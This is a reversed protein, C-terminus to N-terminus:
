GPSKNTYSDSLSQIFLDLAKKRPVGDRGSKGSRELFFLEPEFIELETLMPGMPGTLLDVRAYLPPAGFKAKIAAVAQKAVAIQGLTPQYESVSGGLEDQVLWSGEAPRKLIAHSFTEGFMVLSCEGQSVVSELFPQLLVTRGAQYEGWSGYNKGHRPTIPAGVDTVLVTDRAGASISPKVVVENVHRLSATVEARLDQDSRVFKTPVTPVDAGMCDQLYVKDLNWRIMALPNFVRKGAAEAAALWVMFNRSNEISASYDWPSRIILSDFDAFSEGWILPSVPYGADALADALYQDDHTLLPNKKSPFFRSLDRCTVLGIRNKNPM